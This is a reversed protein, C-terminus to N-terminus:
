YYNIMDIAWDNLVLFIFVLYLSIAIVIIFINLQRSSSFTKHLKIAQALIGVVTISLFFTFIYMFITLFIYLVKM